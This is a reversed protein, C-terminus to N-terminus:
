DLLGYVGLSYSRKEKKGMLSSISIAKGLQLKSKTYRTDSTGSDFGVGVNGQFEYAIVDGVQVGITNAFQVRNLGEVDFSLLQSEWITVLKKDINRLVKVKLSTPEMIYAGMGTLVGQKSIKNTLDVLTIPKDEAGNREVLEGGIYDLLNGQVLFEKLADVNNQVFERVQSRLVSSERIRSNKENDLVAIVNNLDEIEGKLILNNATLQNVKSKSLTLEKQLNKNDEKLKATEKTSQCGSLFFVFCLLYIWNLKM